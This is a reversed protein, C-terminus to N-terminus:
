RTRYQTARYLPKHTIPDDLIFEREARWAADPKQHEDNLTGIYWVTDHRRSFEQLNKIKFQDNQRLMELSGYIYKTTAETFYVPHERSSYFVAEYFAWPSDAIIPQGPAGRAQVEKIVERTLNSMQSNKNYNGLAWVNSIGIAMTGIFLVTFLIKIKRGGNGLVITAAMFLGFMLASALLYRDVFVSKLPPLSLVLLLALPVFTVSGLLTYFRRKEGQLQRLIRVVLVGGSVALAFCAVAFWALVEELDQYLVINTFFSALTSGSVPPIWFGAQVTVAQVVFAPLWPIYLLVALLYAKVWMRAFFKKRFTAWPHQPQWVDFAHWALHSAWVLATFYHTWMGLAVLVAYLIWAKRKGTQVAVVLAFTAAMVTAAVLTYMRVEQSYRIFLPSIAMFVLGLTAARRAFLRRMLLYGFVLAVAGFFVSMSRLALETTGFLLSWAKLLWYYLPPQVDVATYTAIQWFDFRIIYASFAEDFWISFKTITTLALAVYLAIGAVLIAGDVKYLRLFGIFKQILRM